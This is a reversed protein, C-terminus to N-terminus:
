NGKTKKLYLFGGHFQRDPISFDYLLIVKHNKPLGQQIAVFGRGTKILRTYLLVCPVLCHRREIKNTPNRRALAGSRYPNKLDRIGCGQPNMVIIRYDFYFCM